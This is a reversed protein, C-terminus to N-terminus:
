TRSDAAPEHQGPVTGDIDIGPMRLLHDHMSNAASRVAEEAPGNSVLKIRDGLFMQTYTNKDTIVLAGGFLDRERMVRFRKRMFEEVRTAQVGAASIGTFWGSMIVRAIRPRAVSGAGLMGIVANTCELARAVSDSGLCLMKGTRYVNVTISKDTCPIGFNFKASPVNLDKLGGYREVLDELEFRRKCDAVAVVNRVDLLVPM